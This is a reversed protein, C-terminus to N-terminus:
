DKNFALYLVLSLRLLTLTEQFLYTLWQAVGAVGAVESYSLPNCAEESLPILTARQIIPLSSTSASKKPPVTRGRYLPLPSASRSIAVHIRALKGQLTRAYYSSAGEPESHEVYYNVM